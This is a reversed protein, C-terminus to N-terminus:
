TVLLECRIPWQLDPRPHRPLKLLSAGLLLALNHPLELQAARHLHGPASHNTVRAATSVESQDADLQLQPPPALGLRPIDRRLELSAARRQLNLYEAETLGSNRLMNTFEGTDFLGMASAFSPDQRVLEVLKQDSAGLGLRFFM